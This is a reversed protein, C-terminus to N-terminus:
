RNGDLSLVQGTVGPARILYELAQARAEQARAASAMANVRVPALERALQGVVAQRWSTHTHDAAAFDIVVLPHQQAQERVVPVLSAHFQAAADLASEPLDRAEVIAPGDPSATM